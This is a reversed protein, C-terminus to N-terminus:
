EDGLHDAKLTAILDVLQPRAFSLTPGTPHKSDRVAAADPPWALEVCNTTDTYSSKRWRLPASM